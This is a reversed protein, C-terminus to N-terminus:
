DTSNACHTRVWLQLWKLRTSTFGVKQAWAYVRVRSGHGIQEQDWQVLVPHEPSFPWNVKMSYKIKDTHNNLNEGLQPQEKTLIPMGEGSESTVM